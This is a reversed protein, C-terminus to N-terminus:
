DEGEDGVEADVLGEGEEAAAERVSALYELAEELEEPPVLVRGGGAIGLYARPRNSIEYPHFGGAKLMGIVLESELYDGCFVVPLDEKHRFFELLGM